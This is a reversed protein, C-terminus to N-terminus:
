FAARRVVVSRAVARRRVTARHRPRAARTAPALFDELGQLEEPDGLDALHGYRDMTTHFRAHGLRRQIKKFHWGNAILVSAHTHRLDHFRPWRALRGQCECSSVPFDSIRVPRTPGKKPLTRAAPPHEACTSASALAPYWYRLRLNVPNWMLGTLTPFVLATLKRGRIRRALIEAAEGIVSIDRKGAASKPDGVQGDNKLAQRVLITAGGGQPFVVHRGQLAILEGIRMGTRSAVFVLDRILPHCNKLILRVEDASLFMGESPGIKPLGFENKRQGPKPAAPSVPIWKPVAAALCSGTILFHSHITTAKLLGIGTSRNKNGYTVRTSKMTTVWSKVDERTIETLRKHGFYPYARLELSRVYRKLVDAQLAKTKRLEDTWQEAWMKFTPVADDVEVPSGLIAAYCEDRTIDHGRSEVLAKAALALKLRAKEPGTFTCSQKAGGRRGGFLWTIRVSEGRHEPSSAM